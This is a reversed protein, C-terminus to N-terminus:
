NETRLLYKRDVYVTQCWGIRFPDFVFIASGKNNGAAPKGDRYFALRGNTVYRVESCSVLAKSFWQVSPDCMVLMVTGRGKYQADIAKDIWPMIKSYPPNCWLWKGFNSDTDNAWDKSLADNQETWYNLCKATSPQACVDFGFRFEDDLNKFLAPPTEYQDPTSTM